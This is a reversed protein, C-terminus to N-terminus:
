CRQIDYYYRENIFYITKNPLKKKLLIGYKELKNVYNSVTSSHMRLERSLKTKTAGEQNNILFDILQKSKEKSVFFLLEDNETKLDAEFFAEHKEFYSSRIYNFNSLMKIHWALIYNSLNLKRALRNFYIGPNDKITNFIKERNPNNLIDERTLKSRELIDKKKILTKLIEKIGAYNLNISFKKLRVNIFPVIKEITFYRNKNLYEQVIFLVKEEYILIDQTM